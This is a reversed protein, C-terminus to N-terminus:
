VHYKCLTIKLNSIENTYNLFIKRNCRLIYEEENKEENFNVDHGYRLSIDFKYENITDEFDEFTHSCSIIKYDISLVYIDNVFNTYYQTFDDQPFSNSRSRNITKLSIEKPPQQIEESSLYAGM